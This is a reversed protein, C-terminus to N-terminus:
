VIEAVRVIEAEVVVVVVVVGLVVVVVAAIIEVVVVMEFDKQDKEVFDFLIDM